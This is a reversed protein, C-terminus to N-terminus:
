ADSQSSACTSRINRVEIGADSARLCMNKTGKSKGDLDDHFAICLNIPEESTHEVDIMQKNRIPGAAYGHLTWDAPYSRITFGLAEATAHAITDAGRCAGHVVITNPPLQELVDVIAKVDTWERDGTILVKM